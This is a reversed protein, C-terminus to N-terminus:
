RHRSRAPSKRAYLYFPVGAALIGLGYLANKREDADFLSHVVVTTAVIVFLAPTIPYGFCRYPRALEPRLRRLRYVAAVTLAFFVLGVIVVFATIDHFSQMYLVLAIAWIAQSWIAVTPTGYRPHVRTLAAPVLGDKGMAYFARPSSLLNPNAAGMVSIAIFLTLYSSAGAGFIRDVALSPVRALDDAPLARMEEFPVVRLFTANVALYVVILILMGGILGRPLDRSPNRLEAANFPLQYWGEYAWFIGLFASLVGALVFGRQAAETTVVTPAVDSAAGAAVLGGVVIMALAGLKAFTSVNQLVAGVGVGFHNVTALALIMATAVSANPVDAEGAVGFHPLLYAAFAVALAAITGSNIAWFFTWGYLYAVGEGWGERLFAYQGGAEPFMAGMEAYALAGCLCVLGIGAWLVYAWIESPVGLAVAHPKFFIGSGIVAGVTISIASTLGLRRQLQGSPEHM